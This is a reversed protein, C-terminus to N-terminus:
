TNSLGNEGENINESTFDIVQQRLRNEGIRCYEASLEAGIWNRGLNRAAVATTWSGMFPDLVLDGDPFCYILDMIMKVPFSRTHGKDTGEPPWESSNFIDHHSIKNDLITSASKALWYIRETRPYFRIKDFNQSGNDWIIEQKIIWRTKYIWEYPSIQMGKTIRNKHNYLISGTEKTVRYIENLIDIQWEQYELENKDDDYPNHKITGTHHNNGLNYPPSTVTLDVCKDPMESMLDLCDQCNVVNIKDRWDM